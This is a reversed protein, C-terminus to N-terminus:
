KRNMHEEFILKNDVIVGIDNEKDTYKFKTNCLTYKFQPINRKGASLVNCKNPHFKLLWNNSWKELEQMDQQLIKMDTITYLDKFVNTDDAFM